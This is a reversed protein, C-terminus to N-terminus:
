LEEEALCIGLGGGGVEMCLRLTQFVSPRIWLSRFGGANWFSAERFMLNRDGDSCQVNYDRPKPELIQVSFLGWAPGTGGLLARLIFVIM